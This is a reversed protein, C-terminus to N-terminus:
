VSDGLFDFPLQLEREGRGRDRCSTRDGRTLVRDLLRLAVACLVGLRELGLDVGLALERGRVQLRHEIGSPPLCGRRM